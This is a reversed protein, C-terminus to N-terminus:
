GEKGIQEYLKTFASVSSEPNKMMHAHLFSLTYGIRHEIFFSPRKGFAKAFAHIEFSDPEVQGRLIKFVRNRNLGTEEALNRISMHGSIIPVVERLPLMTYEEGMIQDLTTKADVDARPGPRGTSTGVKRADALVRGFVYIDKSFLQYWDLTDISPFQKKVDADSPRQIATASKKRAM